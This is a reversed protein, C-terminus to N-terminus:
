ASNFARKRFPAVVAALLGAVALMATTRLPYDALSHLILLLLSIWAAMRSASLETTQIGSLSRWAAVGAVVFAAALLAAALLALWGAEIWLEIYDNHAHNVYKPGEPLTDAAEYAARFGGLGTGLPAYDRALPAATQAIRFRADELADYNVRQMIGFLAFQVSLMLGFAVAAAMLRREGRRHQRLKLALPLSLVVALMGLVIGGRSRAMALGLILLAILGIGAVVGLVTIPSLDERNRYWGAIGVILLPLSAALLSAFHNRNAFFGVAETRNTNAYFRLPSETGGALQALGLVVSVAAVVVLLNLLWRRRTADMQLGALFMAVAPLMWWLARETALPVLSWRGPTAVGAQALEAALRTRATPLNWLADPVPLLQLLPVSMPVLALWAFWLWRAEAADIHRWAGIGIVVLALLQCLTDGLWGQGGGLALSLTLLLATCAFHLTAIRQSALMREGTVCIAGRAARVPHGNDRPVAPARRTCKPHYGDQEILRQV